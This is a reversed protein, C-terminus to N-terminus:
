EFNKKACDPCIGHSFDAESHQAIYAEMQQWRGREDRIRKCWSCVPLFGSLRKVEALADELEDNLQQYDNMIERIQSIIYAFVNFLIFQIVISWTVLSLTLSPRGFYDVVTWTITALLATFYGASRGVNWSIVTVPILYFLLFSYETGTVYDGAGILVLLFFTGLIILPKPIRSPPRDSYSLQSHHQLEMM